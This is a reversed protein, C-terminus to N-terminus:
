ATAAPSATPGEEEGIGDGGAGSADAEAGEARPPPSPTPRGGGSRPGPAWAALRRGMRWARAPWTPPALVPAHALAARSLTLDPQQITAQVAEHLMGAIRQHESSIDSTLEWMPNCWKATFTVEAVRWAVGAHGTDFWALRLDVSTFAEASYFYHRSVEVLPRSPSAFALLDWLSARWHAPLAMLSEAEPTSLLERADESGDFFLRGASSNVSVNTLDIGEWATEALNLTNDTIASFIRAASSSVNAGAGMMRGAAGGVEEAVDSAISFSRALLPTWAAPLLLAIILVTCSVGGHCGCGAKVARWWWPCSTRRRAPPRPPLMATPGAAAKPTVWSLPVTMPLGTSPAIPPTPPQPSTGVPSVMSSSFTAISSPLIWSGTSPPTAFPSFPPTAARGDLLAPLEWTGDPLKRAGKPPM